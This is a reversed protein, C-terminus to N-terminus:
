AAAIASLGVLATPGLDVGHRVLVPANAGFTARVWDDIRDWQYQDAAYVDLRVLDDLTAGALAASGQM